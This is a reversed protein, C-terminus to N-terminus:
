AFMAALEWSDETAETAVWATFAVVCINVRVGKGPNLGVLNQIKTEKKWKSLLMETAPDWEIEVAQWRDESHIRM